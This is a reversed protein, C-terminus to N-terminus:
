LTCREKRIYNYCRATEVLFANECIHYLVFIVFKTMDGAGLPGWVPDEACEIRFKM